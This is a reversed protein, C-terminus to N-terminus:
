CYRRSAGPSPPCPLGDPRYCPPVHDPQRDSRTVPAEPKKEMSTIALAATTAFAIGIAALKLLLNTGSGDLCALAIAVGYGGVAILSKQAFPTSPRSQTTQPAARPTIDESSVITLHIPERPEDGLELVRAVPTVARYPVVAHSSAPTVSM